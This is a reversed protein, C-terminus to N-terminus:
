CAPRMKSDYSSFVGHLRQVELLGASGWRAEAFRKVAMYPPDMGIIYGIASFRWKETMNRVDAHEIKPLKKGNQEIPPRFKMSRMKAETSDSKAVRRAWSIERGDTKAESVVLGVGGHNGAALSGNSTTIKEPPQVSPPDLSFM